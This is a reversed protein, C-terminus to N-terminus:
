GTPCGKSACTAKRAGYQAAQLTQQVKTLGRWWSDLGKCSNCNSSGGSPMGGNSGTSPFTGGVVWWVAITVVIGIVVAGGVGIVAGIVVGWM